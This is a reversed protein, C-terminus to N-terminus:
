CPYNTFYLARSVSGGVRIDMFDCDDRRMIWFLTVVCFLNVLLKFVREGLM